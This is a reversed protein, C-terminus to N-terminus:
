FVGIKGMKRGYESDKYRKAYIESKFNIKGASKRILKQTKRAMQSKPIKSFFNILIKDFIGIKPKFYESKGWKEEMNRIKTDKHM